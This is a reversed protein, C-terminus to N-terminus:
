FECEVRFSAHGYSPPLLHPQLSCDCTQEKPLQMDWAFSTQAIGIERVSPSSAPFISTRQIMFDHNDPPEGYVYSNGILRVELKDYSTRTVKPDLVLRFSFLQGPKWTGRDIPPSISLTLNKSRYDRWVAEEPGDVALSPRHPLSSLSFSQLSPRDSRAGERYSSTPSKGPFSSPRVCGRGVDAEGETRCPDYRQEGSERAAARSLDGGRSLESQKGVQEDRVVLAHRRERSPSASGDSRRLHISPLPTARSSTPFPLSPRYTISLLTSHLQPHPFLLSFDTPLGSITPPSLRAARRAGGPSAEWDSGSRGGTASSREM